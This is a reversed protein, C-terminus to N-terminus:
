RLMGAMMAAALDGAGVRDMGAVAEQGLVRAEGLDDLAVVDGEDARLGLVDADHAVLDLGLAGGLSSPMGSRARSAVARDDRRPRPSRLDGGLDAIRHEILAAAPPPPRPMFTARM